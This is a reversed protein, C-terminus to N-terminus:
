YQHCDGPDDPHRGHQPREVRSSGAIFQLDGANHLSFRGSCQGRRAPHGPRPRWPPTFHGAICFALAYHALHDLPISAPYHHATKNGASLAQLKLSDLVKTLWELMCRAAAPGHVPLFVGPNGQFSYQAPCGIESGRRRKKNKITKVGVFRSASPPSKPRAYKRSLSFLTASIPSFWM